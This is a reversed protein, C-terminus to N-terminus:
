PDVAEARLGDIHLDYTLNGENASAYIRFGLYYTGAEGSTFTYEAETTNWTDTDTRKWARKGNLVQHSDADYISLETQYSDGGSMNAARHHATFSLTEGGQINFTGGENRLNILSSGAPFTINISHDGERVVTSSASVKSADGDVTWGSGNGREGDHNSSAKIRNGDVIIPNPIPWDSIPVIDGGDSTKLTPTYSLRIEKGSEVQAPLTILITQPDDEQRGISDITVPQSDIIIELAAAEQAPNDIEHTYELLIQSRQSILTAYLLNASQPHPVEERPGADSSRFFKSDSEASHTFKGDSIHGIARPEWTELDNSSEIKVRLGEPGQAQVELQGSKDAIGLNLTPDYDGLTNVKLIMSSVHGVTDPFRAVLTNTGQILTNYPVPIEIVGFFDDRGTQDYGAYNDPVTLANGNLTITPKKSRSHPRGIGMRLSATGEDIELGDFEFTIAQNTSIPQLYSNPHYEKVTVKKEFRIPASYKYALVATGHPSLTISGPATNSTEDSYDPAELDYIELQKIRVSEFDDVSKLISLSITHEIEDDLNNLCVYATDGDVFTDVQVDPNDSSVFARKGRVDQWLEYFRAKETLQFSGVTFSTINGENDKTVQIEEPVPRWLAPTYPHFNPAALYWEAFGTIFPISIELRDQRNFLEFIIHNISRLSQASKEPSYADPYGDEIGGYETIAHPKVIGWKQFSYTEILDLIARSNNGSRQSDQGQVNIGDYLHTAFADMHEGAIDMFMKMRTEWHDFDWKEMSPWASSYGVVKTPVNKAHMAKGVEAFLQAMQERVKVQDNTGFEDAHVFPENMPEFFEPRSEDDFYYKFYNAAWEGAAAFDDDLKFADRPHQTRVNRRTRYPYKSANRSNAIAAAGATKADDESPYPVGTKHEGYPGWFGRGFNINMDEAWERWEGELRRTDWTTHINFYKARDLESVDSLYRKTTLDITVEAAFLSATLSAISCCSLAFRLPSPRNTIPQM